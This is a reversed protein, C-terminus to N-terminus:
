FIAVFRWQSEGDLNKRVHRRSRRRPRGRFRQGVGRRAGPPRCDGRRGAPGRGRSDEPCRSRRGGRPRDVSPGRVRPHLVQPCTGYADEVVDATWGSNALLANHKIDERDVGAVSTALREYFSDEEVTPHFIHDRDDCSVTWDFPFHIYQVSNSELGLENITSVLLDFEDSRRRAYRGLLANQLVYYKLGFQDNMWQALYGAQEVTLAEIDVDTDFYDNLEGLDPDTLTLVTVDHDSQLAELVHMAVAERGGKSMLDM